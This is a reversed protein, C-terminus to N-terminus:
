MYMGGNIHITQGTIYDSEASALFVVANSIDEPQGFEALPIKNMMAQKVEDPLADTMATKIFGPAVANVRVGRAAFEIAATKTLGVLGAKSAVYNAQGANGSFGVISAVNIIKGYKKKMMGKFAYKSCIFASKLNVDLVKEWDETKMRMILTDRTIGANNILIDPAGFTDTIEDFMAKVDDEKSVDGAFMAAKGGNDTIEKVVAEADKKIEGLDLYNVAVTAGLSGLKLALVKGIGSSAGTVLAIKGEFM